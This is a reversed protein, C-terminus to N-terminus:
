GANQYICQAWRVNVGNQETQRWNEPKKQVRALTCMRRIEDTVTWGTKEQSDTGAKEQLGVTGVTPRNGSSINQLRGNETCTGAVEM